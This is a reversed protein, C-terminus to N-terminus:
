FDSKLSMMEEDDKFKIMAMKSAFKMYSMADEDSLKVEAVNSYFDDLSIANEKKRFAPKANTSFMRRAHRFIVKNLM